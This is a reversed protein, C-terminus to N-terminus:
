EMVHPQPVPLIFKGGAIEYLALNKRIETAFNWALVIAYDPQRKILEADDYIPIHSGPSFKGIKSAMKDTLFDIQTNDIQCYNLVTNGKAPASVGAITKGQAKLSQLLERFTQRQKAVAVAFDALSEEDYLGSATEEAIRNAVSESVQHAGPWSVYYRLDGGHISFTEVDFLELGQRAFFNAVPKVSLYGIHELYITGYELKKIMNLADPAEIILVGDPELLKKIGVVADDLYHQHAFSNTASIVSARGFRQVITGALDSSFFDVLTEIGAAQALDAVNKAPDIGLTRCGLEKFSLLLGGTNSGIDVVLSKTSLGFRAVAMTALENFHKRGAATATLSLYPFDDPYLVKPDVRYDIQLLGCDVCSMFRLPYLAEPSDIQEKKLLGDSPPHFGLDLVLRLHPSTCMYCKEEQHGALTKQDTSTLSLM